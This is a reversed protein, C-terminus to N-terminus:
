FVRVVAADFRWNPEDPLLFEETVWGRLSWASRSAGAWLEGASKSIEAAATARTVEETERGSQMMPVLEMPPEGLLDAVVQGAITPLKLPAATTSMEAQAVLSAAMLLCAPALIMM